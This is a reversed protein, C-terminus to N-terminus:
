VDWVGLDKLINYVHVYRTYAVVQEDKTQNACLSNLWADYCPECYVQNISAIYYGDQIEEECLECTPFKDFVACIEKNDMHIVYEHHNNSVPKAM